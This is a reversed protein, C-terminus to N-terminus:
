ITKIVNETNIHEFDAAFNISPQEVVISELHQLFTSRAIEQAGMSFLHDSAVQCDVVVFEKKALWHCLTVLGVKSANSVRSFMSEGFFVNGLAVGYVGGVLENDQWVEISHAYSQQHLKLYAHHMSDTIWTDPPTAFPVEPGRLACAKIVHEFAQNCSVSFHQQRIIKRLSRSIKVKDPYLVLRPDPSWWLIPQDDNFWPFIGQAYASVLTDLSLDGGMALLGDDNANSVEPFSVFEVM